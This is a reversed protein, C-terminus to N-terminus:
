ENQVSLVATLQHWQQNNQKNRKFYYHGDTNPINTEINTTKYFKSVLSIHEKICYSFLLFWLTNNNWLKQHTQFLSYYYKIQACALNQSTWRVFWIDDFMSKKGNESSKLSNVTPWPTLYGMPSQQPKWCIWYNPWICFVLTLNCCTSLDSDVDIKKPHKRNSQCLISFQRSNTQLSSKSSVTHSHYTPLM